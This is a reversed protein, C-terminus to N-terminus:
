KTKPSEIMCYKKVVNNKEESKLLKVSDSTRCLYDDVM